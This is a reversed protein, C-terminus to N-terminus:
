RASPKTASAPDALDHIKPAHRRDPPPADTGHHHHSGEGHDHDHGHSHGGHYAGAEPEFAANIHEVDGGLGLVMNELVHDQQLRLWRDGVQVPVHRNGLHYAIATLQVDTHATVAALQEPAADVQLVHVSQNDGSCLLLAGARLVTGRPLEIGVSLGLLPGEVIEVRQRSRQRRDFPLSVKNLRREALDTEGSSLQNFILDTTSM